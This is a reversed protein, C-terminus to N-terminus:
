PKGTSVGLKAAECRLAMRARREPRAGADSSRGRVLMRAEAACRAGAVCLVHLCTQAADRGPPNNARRGAAPWGSHFAQQRPYRRTARKQGGVDHTTTHTRLCFCTKSHALTGAGGLVSRCSTHVAGAGWRHLMSRGAAVLEDSTAAFNASTCLCCGPGHM